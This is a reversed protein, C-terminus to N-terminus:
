NTRFAFERLLDGPGKGNNETAYLRLFYNRSAALAPLKVDASDRAISTAGHWLQNGRGDVLEAWVQHAGLASANLRVKLPHNAPLTHAEAGRWASLSASVPAADRHSSRYLPGVSVTIALVAAAGVLGMRQPTLWNMLTTAISQRVPQQARELQLQRNAERMASVYSELDELRAVCNDCALVHTEVTDLETENSHHLIYRELMEESPHELYSNQM